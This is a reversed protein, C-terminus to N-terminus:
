DDIEVEKLCVKDGPKLSAQNVVDHTGDALTIKASRYMLEDISVVTTEHVCKYKTPHIAAWGITIIIALAFIM